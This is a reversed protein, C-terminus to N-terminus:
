FDVVKVGAMGVVSVGQVRSLKTVNLNALPIYIRARVREHYDADLQAVAKVKDVQQKPGGVQAVGVRAGHRSVSLVPVIKKADISWDASAAGDPGGLARVINDRWQNALAVASDAKAAAVEDRDATVIVSDKAKVVAEGDFDAVNFDRWGVRRKFAANLRDAVERARELATQGGQDTRLRIVVEGDILVEGVDRGEIEQARATAQAAWLGSAMLLGVGAAVVAIMAAKRM